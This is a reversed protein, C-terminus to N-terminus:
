FMNSAVAPGPSPECPGSDLEKDGCDDIQNGSDKCLTATYTQGTGGRIKLQQKLDLEKEFFRSDLKELKKM